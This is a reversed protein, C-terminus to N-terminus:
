EDMWGDLLRLGEAWREERVDMWRGMWGDVRLGVAGCPEGYWYLVRALDNLDHLCLVGWVVVRCWGVGPSRLTGVPQSLSEAIVAVLLQSGKPVIQLSTCYGVPSFISRTVVIASQLKKM